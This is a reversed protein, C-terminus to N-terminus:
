QEDLPLEAPITGENTVKRVANNGQDAVYLNGHGDVAVATPYGVLAENAPGGDGTYGSETFTHGSSNMYKGAVTYIKGNSAAIMRVLYNDTDAIFVNGHSDVAVSNPIFVEAQLAPGGDGSLGCRSFASSTPKGVLSTIKGTSATVKRIACNLSDAIYVNGSKDVALGAIGNLAANVALGGDGTYGSSGTGAFTTVIHTSASVKLIRDGLDIYINKASDVAIWYPYCLNTQTAPLGPTFVSCNFGSGRGTWANQGNGAVTTIVHTQANVERIVQNLTDAIYLNGSSDVALGQPQDLKASTAPGNDGSYGSAGSTGAYVSIVGTSATVKRVVGMYADSIYLNGAADVAIGRPGILNAHIAPGGNGSDGIFGTGAVTTIISVTTAQPSDIWQSDQTPEEQFAFTEAAFAILAVSILSFRFASLGRRVLM